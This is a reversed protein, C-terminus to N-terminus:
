TPPAVQATPRPSRSSCARTPASRAASSWARAPTPSPRARRVLLRRRDGRRRAPDARRELRRHRLPLGRGRRRDPARGPDRLGRYDVQYTAYNFMTRVPAVDLADPQEARVERLDVLFLSLGRTRETLTTTPAHHAGAAAAPGVARDPEDLEQPRQRRLRRRRARGHDSAPRTPGPTRSPSRSRRCACSARRRHGPLYRRKQEESGHRLLAGMMYMQAHCAAANGGSRNIEELIISAETSASGSAATSADPDARRPLRGRDARRRVGRPLGAGPRLRALVRRPVARM